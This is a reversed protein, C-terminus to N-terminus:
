WRDDLRLPGRRKVLRQRHSVLRGQGHGRWTRRRHCQDCLGATATSPQAHRHCRPARGHGRQQDSRRGTRRGASGRSGQHAPHRQTDNTLDATVVRVEVGSASARIANATEGLRDATRALLSVDAADQALGVATGAGIGRGSGTILATKGVFGATM